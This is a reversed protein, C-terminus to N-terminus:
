KIKLFGEPTLAKATFRAQRIAGKFYNRRNIRTGLSTAGEGQPKFAVEAEHDIRMRLQIADDDGRGARPVAELVGGCEAFRDAIKGGSL